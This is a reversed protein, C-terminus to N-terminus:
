ARTACRTSSPRGVGGYDVALAVEAGAFAPQGLLRQVRDVIKPYSVGRIREAHRVDLNPKAPRGHTLAQGRLHSRQGPVLDAPSVWGPQGDYYVGSGWGPGVWVAVELVVIATYDNAQGLDASVVYDWEVPM